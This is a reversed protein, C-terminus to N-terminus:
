LLRFCLYSYCVHKIRYMSMHHLVSALQEKFPGCQNIQGIRDQGLIYIQFNSVLIGQNIYRFPHEQSTLLLLKTEACKSSSPIVTKRLIFESPYMSIPLQSYVLGLCPHSLITLLNISVPVTLSHHSSFILLSQHFLLINSLLLSRQSMLMLQVFSSYLIRVTVYAWWALHAFRPKVNLVFFLRSFSYHPTFSPVQLTLYHSLSSHSMISQYNTDNESPCSPHQTQM